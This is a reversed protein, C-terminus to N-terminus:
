APKEIKEQSHCNPCLLTLNEPRNNRFDGDKHHVQLVLPAGRWEGENPCGSCRYEFGYEKMARRLIPLRERLGNRRDFVLIKPWGIKDTGGIHFEGSNTRNGRFHSTDIGLDRLKRSIYVHNGGAQKKGLFRLVQRVSRSARVAEELIEKTYKMGM